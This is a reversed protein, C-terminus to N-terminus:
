WRTAAQRESDDSCEATLCVCVCVTYPWEILWCHNTALFHCSFVSKDLDFGCVCMASHISEQHGMLVNLSYLAMWTQHEPFYMVASLNSVFGSFVLYFLSFSFCVVSCFLVVQNLWRKHYEALFCPPSVSRLRCSTPCGRVFPLCQIFTKCTIMLIFMWHVVVPM